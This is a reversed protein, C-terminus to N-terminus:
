GEKRILNLNPTAYHGECFRVQFNGEYPEEIYSVVKRSLTYFNHKIRPKPLPYLTLYSYMKSWSMSM